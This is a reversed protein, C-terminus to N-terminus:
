ACATTRRKGRLVRTGLLLLAIGFLAVSAPEPVVHTLGFTLTGATWYGDPVGSPADKFSEYFELRLIGDNLVDFNLQQAALDVTGAYTGIGSHTDASAATFNLGHTIASDTFLLKMESLFSPANASLTFNWTLSSVTTDAGINFILVTNAAAGRLGVSPVGTVNVILPPLVQPIPAASLSSCAFALVVFLSKCMRDFM